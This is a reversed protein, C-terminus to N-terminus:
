TNYDVLAIPGKTYAAAGVRTRPDPIKYTGTGSETLNPGLAAQVAVQQDDTAHNFPIDGLPTAWFVYGMIFIILGGVLGGILTRVMNIRGRKSAALTVWLPPPPLGRPHM